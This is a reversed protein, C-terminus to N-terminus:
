TAGLLAHSIRGDSERRRDHVKYAVGSVTVTSGVELGPFSATRYIMTRMEGLVASAGELIQSDVLDVLAKATYSGFTVTDGFDALMIDIDAEMNM